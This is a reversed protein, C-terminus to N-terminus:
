GETDEDYEGNFAAHYIRLSIEKDHSIFTFTKSVM